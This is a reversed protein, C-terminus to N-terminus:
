LVAVVYSSKLKVQEAAVAFLQDRLPPDLLPTVKAPRAQKALPVFASCVYLSHGGPVYLPVKHTMQPLPTTAAKVSAFFNWPRPLREEAVKQFRMANRHGVVEQISSLVAVLARRVEVASHVPFLMTLHVQQVEIQETAVDSSSTDEEESPFAGETQTILGPRRCLTKSVEGLRVAQECMQATVKLTQVCLPRQLARM